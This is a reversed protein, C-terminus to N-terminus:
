NSARARTRALVEYERDKLLEREQDRIVRELERQMGAEELSNTILAWNRHLDLETYDLLEPEKCQTTRGKAVEDSIELNQINFVETLRERGKFGENVSKRCKQLLRIDARFNLVQGRRVNKEILIKSQFWHHRYETGEESQIDAILVKLKRLEMSKLIVQQVSVHNFVGNLPVNKLTEIIRYKTVGFRYVIIDKM